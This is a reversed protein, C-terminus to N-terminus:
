IQRREWYGSKIWAYSLALCILEAIPLALWVYTLSATFVVLAAIYAASLMAATLFFEIVLAADTDGTGAVAAVWMQAPVVILMSLLVLRLGGAAGEIAAQDSTFISLVVNPFLTGLVVVPLTMLYTSLTLARILRGIRGLLSQPEGRWDEFAEAATRVPRDADQARDKGILSSVMSLAAVSFAMTPILLVEYCPTFTHSTPSFCGISPVVSILCRLNRLALNRTV